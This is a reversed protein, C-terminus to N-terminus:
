FGEYVEQIFTSFMFFKNLLELSFFNFYQLDRIRKVNNELIKPLSCFVKIEQKKLNIAQSNYFERIKQIESTRRSINESYRNEENRIRSMKHLM